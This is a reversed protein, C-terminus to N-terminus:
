FCPMCQLLNGVSIEGTARHLGITNAVAEQLDVEFSLSSVNKYAHKKTIYQLFSWLLVVGTLTYQAPVKMQRYARSRYYRYQNYFHEKPHALAYDYSARTQNDTLIQVRM